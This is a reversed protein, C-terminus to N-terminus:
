FLQPGSQAEQSLRIKVRRLRETLRAHSQQIKGIIRCTGFVPGSGVAEKWDKGTIKLPENTARMDSLSM